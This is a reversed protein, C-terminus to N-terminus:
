FITIGDICENILHAFIDSKPLKMIRGFLHVM